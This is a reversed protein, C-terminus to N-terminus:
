ILIGADIDIWCREDLKLCGKEINHRSVWAAGDSITLAKLRKEHESNIFSVDFIEIFYQTLKGTVEARSTHRSPEITCSYRISLDRRDLADLVKLEHVLEEKLERFPSTERSSRLHFWSKFETVMSGPISLRLEQSLPNERVAQFNELISEDYYLYAGGLPM